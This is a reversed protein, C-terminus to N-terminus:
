VMATLSFGVGFPHFHWKIVTVIRKACPSAQQQMLAM